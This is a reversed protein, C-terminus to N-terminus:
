QSKNQSSLNKRFIWTNENCISVTLWGGIKQLGVLYPGWSDSNIRFINPRRSSFPTISFSLLSHHASTTRAAFVCLSFTGHCSYCHLSHTDYGFSFWGFRGNAKGMGQQLSTNCSMSVYSFYKIETSMSLPWQCTTTSFSACSVSSNKVRSLFWLHFM